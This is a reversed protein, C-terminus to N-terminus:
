HICAAHCRRPLNKQLAQYYPLVDAGPLARSWDAACLDPIDFSRGRWTGALRIPRLEAICWNDHMVHLAAINWLTNRLTQERKPRQGHGIAAVDIRLYPEVLRVSRPALWSNHCPDDVRLNSLM